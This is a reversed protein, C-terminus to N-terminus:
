YGYPDTAASMATLLVWLIYFGVHIISSIIGGWLGALAMWRGGEPSRGNKISDLEMWGVIAAPVGAIPGCCILAAIALVLAAIAKQGYGADSGHNMPASMVGPWQQQGAQQGGVVPPPPSHQHLPNACNLCYMADAPNPQNCKPCLKTM